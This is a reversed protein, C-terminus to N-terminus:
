IKNGHGKFWEPAWQLTSLVFHDRNHMWSWKLCPLLSQHCRRSGVIGTAWKNPFTWYLVRYDVVFHYFHNQHLFIFIFYEEFHVTHVLSSRMQQHFGQILFDFSNWGFSSSVSVSALARQQWSFSIPKTCYAGIACFRYDYQQVVTCNWWLLKVAATM